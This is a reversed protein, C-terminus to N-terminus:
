SLRRTKLGNISSFINQPAASQRPLFMLIWVFSQYLFYFLGNRANSDTKFLANQGKVTKILAKIHLYSLPSLIRVFLHCTFKRQEPM